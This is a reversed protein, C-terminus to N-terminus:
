KAKNAHMFMELGIAELLAVEVAPYDSIRAEMLRRRATAESWGARRAM